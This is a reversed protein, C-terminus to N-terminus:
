ELAPNIVENAVRQFLGGLWEFTAGLETISLATLDGFIPLINTSFSNVIDPIFTNLLYTDVDKFGQVFSELGASFNPKATEWAKELKDFVGGIAKITPEFVVKLEKVKRKLLEVFDSFKKGTTGITTDLAGTDLAFGGAGLGVGGGAAGAGAGGGSSGGSSVVNLEDFGATVRKLKEASKAAGDLNSGMASAGSAASNIGTAVSAMAGSSGGSVIGFFNAIWQVATSVANILWTLAKTVATIAPTLAVLLTNSLNTLATQLPQTTKGLNATTMDLRAQAENAAILEANNQEYIRAADSYLSNLTNRILAEREAESNTKALQANFADESVGAWNLADAMTGTVKSVKATENAAETLGEIPLSDGFTAYVGQLATTWEALHQENTTLKALHAGAETAKGSDGLFRYLNQYSKAAQETTSGAAVFATTLKAQEQRFQKTNNALSVLATTIAIISGVVAVAAVGVAKFAAGLKASSKGGEKGMDGLQKKVGDINKRANDTVAKIIIQLEESM